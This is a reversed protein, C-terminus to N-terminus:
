LVLSHEIVADLTRVSFVCRRFVSFHTEIEMLVQIVFTAYLHFSIFSSVRLRMCRSDLDMCICLHSAFSQTGYFIGLQSLLCQVEM